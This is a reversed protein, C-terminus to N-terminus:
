VKNVTKELYEFWKRDRQIGYINKDARNSKLNKLASVNWQLRGVDASIHVPDVLCVFVAAHSLRPAPLLYFRLLSVRSYTLRQSLIILFTRGSGNFHCAPRCNNKCHRFESFSINRQKQQKAIGFSHQWFILYFNATLRWKVADHLSLQM